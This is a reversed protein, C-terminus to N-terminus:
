RSKERILEEVAAPLTTEFDVLKAWTPTLAIHVMQDYLARVGAECEAFQKDSLEKRGAQLYGDPIGDVTELAVTGRMLLIAPPHKGTTDITVAVNPNAALARVKYANPTTWMDIGTETRLFGIPVVRPM